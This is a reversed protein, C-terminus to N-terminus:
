SEGRKRHKLFAEAVDIDHELEVVQNVRAYHEKRHEAKLMRQM